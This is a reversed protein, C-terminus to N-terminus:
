VRTARGLGGTGCAWNERIYTTLFCSLPCSWSVRSTGVIVQQEGLAAIATNAVRGEGQSVLRLISKNRSSYPVKSEEVWVLEAVPRRQAGGERM